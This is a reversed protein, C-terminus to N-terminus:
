AELGLERARERWANPMRETLWRDARQVKRLLEPDVRAGLADAARLRAALRQRALLTYEWDYRPHGLYRPDVSRVHENCALQLEDAVAVEWARLRPGLASELAAVTRAALQPEAPLREGLAILLARAHHRTPNRERRGLEALEALAGDLDPADEGNM